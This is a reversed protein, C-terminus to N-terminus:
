MAEKSQATYSGYSHYSAYHHYSSSYTFHRRIRVNNLVVGIVNTNIAEIREVTHRLARKRTFEPKAVFIVGDVADAISQSDSVVGLPPSDIIVCDYQKRAWAILAAPGKGGVIVSPSISDSTQSTIIELNEIGGSVPLTNFADYNEQDLTHLLSVLEKGEAFISCLRPRRLDFDILLTKRGSQAMAIALNCAVVTKGEEAQTSAVLIVKYRERAEKYTLLTRLSAFTESVHSFKDELCLTALRRREAQKQRPIIALVAMGMRDLDKIGTLKDELIEIVLSIGYGFLGGFMLALALVRVMRPAIPTEPLIAAQMLKLVATNEDAAMRSEEIRSLVSRYSDDAAEQERILTNLRGEDQVIQLELELVRLSEKDIRQRIDAVQSSLLKIGNYVTGEITSLFEDLRQRMQLLESEAATVQPHKETYRKRLTSLEINAHWWNATFEKLMDANPINLPVTEVPIPHEKLEELYKLVSQHTILKSELLILEANLQLLSEESVRKQSRRLDLYAETRYAVIAEEAAALVKKQQDAQVQLWAVADDSSSRNEDIMMSTACEAFLNAIEQAFYPDAHRVSVEVVYSKRLVVWQVCNYLLDALTDVTYGAAPHAELYRRAVRERMSLSQFKALRTNFVMDTDTPNPDELVASEKLLRPKRVSMEMVASARYVPQALQLYLLGFGVFLLLTLLVTKWHRLGIQVMRMLDIGRDGPSSYLTPGYGHMDGYGGGYRPAAYLKDPPPPSSMNTEMM